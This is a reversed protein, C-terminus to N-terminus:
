PKGSYPPIFSRTANNLHFSIRKAFGLCKEAFSSSKSATTEVEKLPRKISQLAKKTEKPITFKIFM